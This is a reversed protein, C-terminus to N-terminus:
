LDKEINHIRCFEEAVLSPNDNEYIDLNEKHGNGIDIAVILLKKEGERSTKAKPKVGTSNTNQLARSSNNKQPTM